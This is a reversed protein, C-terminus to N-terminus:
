TEGWSEGTGRRPPLPALSPFVPRGPTHLQAPSAPCERTGEWPWISHRQWKVEQHGLSISPLRFVEGQGRTERERQGVGLRPLRVRLEEKCLMSGSCFSCSSGETQKWVAAAELTQSLKRVVPLTFPLSNRGKTLLLSVSSAAGPAVLCEIFSGKPPGLMVCFYIASFFM